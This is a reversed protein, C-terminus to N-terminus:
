LNLAAACTIFQRNVEALFEEPNSNMGKYVHAPCQEGAGVAVEARLVGGEASPAARGDESPVQADTGSSGPQPRRDLCTTWPRPIKRLYCGMNAEERSIHKPLLKM